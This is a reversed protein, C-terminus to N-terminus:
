QKVFKIVGTMGKRDSVHLTYIGTSLTSVNIQDADTQRMIKQGTIDYINLEAIDIVGSLHIIFTAPDPYVTFSLARVEEIGSVPGDLTYRDFFKWIEDTASIDRNTNGFSSINILGGPWTHGGNAIKYFLVDNGNACYPYHITQVTCGDATNSNPLDTTDTVHQCANTDRWYAITQEVGISGTAGTSYPVTPDTTGHIHMVPIKRSPHCTSYTYASMTGAVSAVAALRDTIACALTYTMYGGNSMGCSYIRKPNVNYHASLTDILETLFKTDDAGFSGGAPGWSNWYNSIGNPYVVIYGHTDASADMQSYIEQQGANSTYGHLNLVLPHATAASYGAPLHVNYNRYVGDVIFSDTQASLHAASLLFCLILTIYRQKM